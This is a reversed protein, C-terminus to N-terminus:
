AVLEETELTFSFPAPLKITGGFPVQTQTVYDGRSPDSFLTVQGRQRDVLLYLPIQAAAYGHRKGHRDHDPSSSTVEVVMAVGDPLMWPPAGRFLCRDWPAFTVDPILRSQGTASPVVLGKHGAFDMRTAGSAFVQQTMRSIGHERSGDPPPSVVIEGDILEARYGEPTDLSLFYEVTSDAPTEPERTMVTM